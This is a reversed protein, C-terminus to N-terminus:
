IVSFDEPLKVLNMSKKYDIQKFEELVMALESEESYESPMPKVQQEAIPM